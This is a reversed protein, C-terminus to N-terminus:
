LVGRLTVGFLPAPLPPPFIDLMSTWKCHRPFDAGARCTGDCPAGDMADLALM